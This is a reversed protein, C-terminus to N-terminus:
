MASPTAAAGPFVACDSYTSEALVIADRSIHGGQLQGYIYRSRAPRSDWVPYLQDAEDVMFKSAAM